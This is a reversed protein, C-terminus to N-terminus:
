LLYDLLVTTVSTLLRLSSGPQSRFACSVSLIPMPPPAAMRQRRQHEVKKYNSIGMSACMVIMTTYM